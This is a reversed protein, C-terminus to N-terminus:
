KTPYWYVHVPFCHLSRDFAAYPLWSGRFYLISIEMSITDTRIPYDMLIFLTLKIIVSGHRSFVQIKTYKCFLCLSAQADVYSM